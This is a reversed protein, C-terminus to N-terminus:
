RPHELHGWSQVSGPSIRILPRNELDHDAYQDYKQELASAGLTHPEDGPSFHTATGRVQVWGLRDWNETYHDVVLAVRPNENIDRSRRLENPSVRQPKEDIPTVIDGDALAFCVPVVRPRAEADATALRGLRARELYQREHDQFM